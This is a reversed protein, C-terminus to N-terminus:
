EAIYCDSEKYGKKGMYKRELKACQDFAENEEQQTSVSWSAPQYADCVNPSSCLAVYLLITYM